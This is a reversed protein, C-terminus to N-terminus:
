NLRSTRHACASDRETLRDALSRLATVSEERDEYRKMLADIRNHVVCHIDTRPTLGRATELHELATDWDGDAAETISLSYHMAALKEDVSVVKVVAWADENVAEDVPMYDYVWENWMFDADELRTGVALRQAEGGWRRAADLDGSLRTAEVLNLLTGLSVESEIARELYTRATDVEGILLHFYGVNNLANKQLPNVALALRSFEIARPYDGSAAFGRGVGIYAASVASTIWDMDDSEIQRVLDQVYGLLGVYGLLADTDLTLWDDDGLSAAPILAGFLVALKLSSRQRVASRDAEPVPPGALDRPDLTEFRALLDNPDPSMASDALLLHSGQFSFTGPGVLEGGASVSVAFPRDLRSTLVAARWVAVATDAASVPAADGALDRWGSVSELMAWPDGLGHREVLLDRYWQLALMSRNVVVVDQRLNEVEQLSLLPFTDMDGSTVLIADPPATELLWRGVALTAPTLFGTQMLKRLAEREVDREGREAAAFVLDLWGNGDDPDCEVAQRLYQWATDADADPWASRRPTYATGLVGLAHSSCDDRALALRAGTIAGATDESRLLVEAIWAIPDADSTDRAAADVFLPLSAAVEGRNYLSRASDFSSTTAADPELGSRVLTPLATVLGRTRVVAYASDIRAGSNILVRGVEDHGGLAAWVLPPTGTRDTANVRAGSYLLLRVVPVHGREAALMLPTRGLADRQDVEAGEQIFRSVADLDGDAAAGLLAADRGLDLALEGYEFEYEHRRIGRTSATEGASDRLTASFEEKVVLRHPILTKPETVLNIESMMDLSETVPVSSDGQYLMETFLRTLLARLAAPDPRGHLTLRVCASDARGPGCQVRAEALHTYRHSILRDPLFPSQQDGEIRNFLFDDTLAQEMVSRFGPAEAGISDILPALAARVKSIYDAADELDLLAGAGDVIYDPKLVRVLTNFLNVWSRSGGSVKPGEFDTFRILRGLEHDEVVLGYGITTTSSDVAGGEELVQLFRENVRVALGVPWGFNLHFSSVRSLSDAVPFGSQVEIFVHQARDESVARMWGVLAGVSDPPEIGRRGTRERVARLTRGQQTYQARYTGFTGGVEVSPPLEAQWGPPLEVVFETRHTSPGNFEDIAIPFRRLSDGELEAAWAEMSYDPLPLPVVLKNGSRAAADPVKFWVLAAPFVSLDFADGIQASDVQAREFYSRAIEEGAAVIEEDDALDVDALLERLDGAEIGSAVLSIGGDFSGDDLLKGGISVKLLSTGPDELPLVVLEGTGDARILLGASGQLGYPLEGFPMLSSTLDTFKRGRPTEVAAIMHDFASVMPRLSDVGGTAEVLVPYAAYGLARLAAVFFTTKDKCDGFRSEFVEDPNRPQYGGDGLALSVYRFAQAVWRHVTLISDNATRAESLQSSMESRIDDTLGYRDHSLEHYWAAISDWTLGSSVTISEIVENPSGALPEWEIAPISDGEWVLVRRGECTYENFKSDINREVIRPEVSEPLDLVFRSRQVDIMQNMLWSFSFDSPYAPDFVDYTHSVDVIVGPAMGEATFRRIRQDTYVPADFSVEPASEQVHAPGDSLLEGDPSYVRLWNLALEGREPNYVYAFEGWREVGEQTLIQAVQRYTSLRRGGADLQVVGEDFLLVVDSGPHEEPSVALAYLAADDISPACAPAIERSQASALCPVAVSAVILSAYRTGANVNSGLIALSSGTRAPGTARALTDDV